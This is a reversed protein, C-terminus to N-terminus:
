RRTHLPGQWLRAFWGPSGQPALWELEGPDLWVGLCGTCRDILIKRFAMEELREGCKPCRMFCTERIRKREETVLRQRGKELLEQEQRRFFGEERGKKGNDRRLSGDQLDREDWVKAMASRRTITRLAIEEYLHQYRAVINPLNFHEEVRRRATSGLQSRDEPGLGLVSRWAQVLALPDRPPVVRGTEGVILAADGVDTVVCP